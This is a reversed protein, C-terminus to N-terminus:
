IKLMETLVSVVEDGSKLNQDVYADILDDLKKTHENKLAEYDANLSDMVFNLKAGCSELNHTLRSFSAFAKDVEKLIEPTLHTKALASKKDVEATLLDLHQQIAQYEEALTLLYSIATMGGLLLDDQEQLLSSFRKFFEGHEGKMIEFLRRFGTSVKYEIGMAFSFQYGAYALEKSYLGSSALLKRSLTGCRKELGITTEMDQLLKKWHLLSSPLDVIQHSFSDAHMEELFATKMVVRAQVSPHDFEQAQLFEWILEHNEFKKSELLKRLM